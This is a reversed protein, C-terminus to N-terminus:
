PFHIIWYHWNEWVRSQAKNIAKRKNTYFYDGASYENKRSVYPLITILKLMVVM